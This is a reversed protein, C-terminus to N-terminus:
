FKDEQITNFYSVLQITVYHLDGKNLRVKLKSLFEKAKM